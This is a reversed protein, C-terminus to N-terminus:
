LGLGIILRATLDPAGDTLGFLAGASVWLKPSPAWSLAPGASAAVEKSELELAGITEAGIKFAPVVEYSVGATWEPEVETEVDGLEVEAILNVAATLPGFDRAVILKPEIAYVSAAFDKKLEFYALLDVPLEGREAFRYRTRLKTQAYHLPDSTMPDPTSVQDFVQYLSVDWHDTIGYEVEIQLQFARPSADAFTARKQTNYLELELGGEPMTLYEYTHTFARRDARADPPAALAALALVLALAATRTRTTTTMIKFIMKMNM